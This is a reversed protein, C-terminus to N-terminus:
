GKRPKETVFPKDVSPLQPQLSENFTMVTWWLRGTCLVKLRERLSLAWCSVVVGERSRHAPLPLYQPQDKAYVCNQEKFGMPKMRDTREKRRAALPLSGLARRRGVGESLSCCRPWGARWRGCSM